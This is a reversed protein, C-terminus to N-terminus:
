QEIAYKRLRPREKIGILGNIGGVAGGVVGGVPGLSNTKSYMLAIGIM